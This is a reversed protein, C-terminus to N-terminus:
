RSSLVLQGFVRGVCNAEVSSAGHAVHNGTEIEAVERDAGKGQVRLADTADERRGPGPRLV